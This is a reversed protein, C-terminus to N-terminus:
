VHTASLALQKLLAADGHVLVRIAQAIEIAAADPGLIRVRCWAGVRVNMGQAALDRYFKEAAERHEVRREQLEVTETDM